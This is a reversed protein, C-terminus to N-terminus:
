KGGCNKQHGKKLIEPEPPVAQFIQNRVVKRM